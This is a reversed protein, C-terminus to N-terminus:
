HGRESGVIPRGNLDNNERITKKNCGVTANEVNDGMVVNVVIVCSYIAVSIRGTEAM